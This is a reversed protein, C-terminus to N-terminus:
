SELQPHWRWCIEGSQGLTPCLIPHIKGAEDILRWDESDILDQYPEMQVCLSELEETVDREHEVEILAMSRRDLDLFEALRKQEDTMPSILPTEYEIRGWLNPFDADREVVKGIKLEGLFLHYKM